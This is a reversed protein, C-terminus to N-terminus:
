VRNKIEEFIEQQLKQAEAKLIEDFNAINNKFFDEKDKDSSNQSFIEQMQSQKDASLSAYAAKIARALALDLIREELNTTDM